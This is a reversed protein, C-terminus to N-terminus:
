AADRHPTDEATTSAGAARHAEAIAERIRDFPEALDVSEALERLGAAVRETDTPLPGGTPSARRPLFWCDVALGPLPPEAPPPSAPSHGRDGPDGAASPLLVVPTDGARGAGAADADAILLVDPRLKAAGVLTAGLHEGMLFPRLSRGYLIRQAHSATVPATCHFELPRGRGSVLLYGGVWPGGEAAAPGDAALSAVDLYGFTTPQDDQPM